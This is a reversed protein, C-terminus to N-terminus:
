GRGHLRPREGPKSGIWYKMFRMQGSLGLAPDVHDEVVQAGVLGLAMEPEGPVLVDAEVERRGVGRCSLAPLTALLPVLKFGLGFLPLSFAPIM